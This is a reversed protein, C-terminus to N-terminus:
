RRRRAPRASAQRDIERLAAHWHQQEVVVVRHGGARAGDAEGLAGQLDRGAPSRGARHDVLAHGPVPALHEEAVPPDEAEVQQGLVAVLEGGEDVQLLVVDFLPQDFRQAPVPRRDLQAPAVMDNGDRVMGIADRELDLRRVAAIANGGIPQEGAVADREGTRSDSPRSTGAASHEVVAEQDGVHTICASKGVSRQNQNSGGNWGPWDTSSCLCAPCHRACRSGARSRRRDPLPVFLRFPDHRADLRHETCFSFELQFPDADVREAAAAHLPEHVAAHHEGAIRRM